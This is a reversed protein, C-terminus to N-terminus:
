PKDDRGKLTPPHHSQATMSPTAMRDVSTVPVPKRDQLWPPWYSTLLTKNGVSYRGRSSAYMVLAKQQKQIEEALEKQGFNPDALVKQQRRQGGVESCLVEEEEVAAERAATSRRPLPDEVQYRHM